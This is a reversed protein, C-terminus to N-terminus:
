TKQRLFLSANSLLVSIFPIIAKEVFGHFKLKSNKDLPCLEGNIEMKTDETVGYFSM